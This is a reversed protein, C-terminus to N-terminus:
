IRGRVSAVSGEVFCCGNWGVEQCWNFWQWFWLGLIADIVGVVFTEDECRKTDHAREKKEGEDNEGNVFNVFWWSRADLFRVDDLSINLAVDCISASGCSFLAFYDDFITAVHVNTLSRAEIWLNQLLIAVIWQTNRTLIVLFLQQIIHFPFQISFFFSEFFYLFLARNQVKIKYFM